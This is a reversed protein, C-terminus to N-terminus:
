PRRANIAIRIFNSLITHNHAEFVPRAADFSSVIAPAEGSPSSWGSVIARDVEPHFQVGYAHDCCRFAQWPCRSSSALLTAGAPPLFSDYHWQFTTFTAPVGSFLPDACGGSTLSVQCIGKEGHPSRPTVSGGSAHALLQGGLCIGLLPVRLRLAGKMFSEVESLYPFEEREHVGMTGGLVIIGGLSAPDPLPDNDCPLFTRGEAGAARLLDTCSGAPVEPDNQIIAFM